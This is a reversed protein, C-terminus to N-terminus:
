RNWSYKGMGRELDWLINYKLFWGCFVVDVEIVVM